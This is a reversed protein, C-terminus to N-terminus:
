ACKRREKMAEICEEKSDCQAVTEIGSPKILRLAWIDSHIFHDHTIFYDGTYVDSTYKTNFFPSADFWRKVYATDTIVEQARQQPKM